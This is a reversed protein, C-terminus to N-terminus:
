GTTPDCGEGPFPLFLPWLLVAPVPGGIEQGRERDHLHRSDHCSQSMREYGLGEAIYLAMATAVLVLM